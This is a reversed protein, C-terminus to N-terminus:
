GGRTLLALGAPREYTVVHFGRREAAGHIGWPEGLPLFLKTGGERRLLALTEDLQERTPMSEEGTYPTVDEVGVRAALRHGLQALVVVREGDRTHAAVFREAAPEDFTRATTRELRQVQLWPAPLQPLSCVLLGFGFLCALEPLTPLRPARAAVRRVALVFLLTLSLAWAPFMNTLVEPHSRGMYYAGIGLGFVGSWALLGTMLRGTSCTAARVTATGIAAVYTLYILTSVGILPKVPLLGFGAGAFVRAYRFLLGVDPLRGAHVLTLAAVAAYAALLGAVLELAIRAAERPAPRASWLVAALTAGLAPIGFDGNNLAVLGGAAFLLWRRRPWAGDLHRATLLLLLLPGALRLPYIGQLTVLSYRDASDGSMKYLSTTLLPLFLALAGLASSLLRRLVAFLTALAAATLLSTLVTYSGVSDGVARMAAALGYPWLSGYQAAFDALPSRGDLVAYTEDITFMLHLRNNYAARLITHEFSVAPLVSIAVAVVVVVWAAAHRRPTERLLLGARARVQPSRAAAAVAAAIAAAAVLTAVTFYVTRSSTAAMQTYLSEFRTAYQSVICGIGFAVALAQVGTVWRAVSPGVELRRRLGLAVAAVLLLPGALAVLYRGLETPEPLFYRRASPWPTAQGSPLLAGLSPGLLLMATVTVVACPVLALWAIESATAPRRPRASSRVGARVPRTRDGSRM